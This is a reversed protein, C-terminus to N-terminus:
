HHNVITSDTFFFDGEVFGLQHQQKLFGATGSLKFMSFLVVLHKSKM